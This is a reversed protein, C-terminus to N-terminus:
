VGRGGQRAQPILGDSAWTRFAAIEPALLREAAGGVRLAGRGNRGPLVLVRGSESFKSGAGVVLKGSVELPVLADAENWHGRHM